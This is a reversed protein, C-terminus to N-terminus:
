VTTKNSAQEEEAEEAEEAGARDTAAAAAIYAARCRSCACWRQHVHGWLEDATIMQLAALWDLPGFEGKYLRRRVGRTLAARSGYVGMVQWNMVDADVWYTCGERLCAGANCLGEPEWIGPRKVRPIVPHVDVRRLVIDKGDRGGKEDPAREWTHSVQKLDLVRGTIGDDRVYGDERHCDGADVYDEFVLVVRGDRALAAMRADADLRALVNDDARAPWTPWADTDPVFPVPSAAAM